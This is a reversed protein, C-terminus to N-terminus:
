MTTVSDGVEKFVNALDNDNMSSLRRKFELLKTKLMEDASPRPIISIITSKEPERSCTIQTAYRTCLGPARPFSFGTLSELVSSKGSSQDGVVVLQCLTLSKM